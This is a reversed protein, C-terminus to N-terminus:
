VTMLYGSRNGDVSYRARGDPWRDGRKGPLSADRETDGQTGQTANREYDEMGVLVEGLGCGFCLV